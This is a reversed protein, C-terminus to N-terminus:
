VLYISSTMQVFVALGSTSSRHLRSIIRAAFASESIRRGCLLFTIVHAATAVGACIVKSKRVVRNATIFAVSSVPPVSGPPSM